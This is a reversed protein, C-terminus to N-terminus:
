PEVAGYKTIRDKLIKKYNGHSTLMSTKEEQTIEFYRKNDPNFLMSVEGVEGDFRNKKVQLIRYNPLNNKQLIMISDAEQSIKATGFISGVTLNNDDDVKKPHIIVCIHVNRDSALQRLRSAVMDQLEFKQPGAAQQSLMFQMNDICILQIDYAYIAYDLTEFMLDIPTSGYFNMFYLPNQEFREMMLDLREESGDTLKKRSFQQLMAQALVENRIEFSGWLTPVGQSLFDISLQSLFTTKGSGTAGTILTLEGQRFGKLTRNYFTFDKSQIGSLEQYNLIRHLVKEKIDSFSLLNKDGLTRSNKEFIEKFDLGQRLADNADKPGEQDHM